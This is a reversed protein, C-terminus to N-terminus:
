RSPERRGQKGGDVGGPAPPTPRAARPSVAVTERAVGSASVPPRGRGRAGADLVDSYLDLWRSVMRSESFSELARARGEGGMREAAERDLLTRLLGSALAEPDGPQVLHGTRGEAVLETLGGARTAVVATGRMMAEAAVLGFPEEWLSPVAHVWASALRREAVERDLFGAWEVHDDLRLEGALRRLRGTEPGDGLVLLRAEPLVAVIRAMAHLLVDVGKKAVLRGAFAVRPPAELAPRRGGDHVGNPIAGDVRIGEKSVRRRVWDSNAVVRDFITLDTLWRQAMARAVGAWPLCGTAHCITGPRHPCPTGDPLTKSIEPCIQDYNHLHLVAPTGRLPRLALPSLQTLFMHVHVVDPQFERLERRVASAASPNAVRLVRRLPGMTGHCTSDALVPLPLPQARTTLLRAQHGRERVGDRLRLALVEAGGSATGYNHLYLVRLPRNSV